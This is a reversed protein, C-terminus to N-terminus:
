RRRRAKAVLGAAGSALVIITMPEPVPSSGGGGTNLLAIGGLAGLIGLPAVGGSPTAIPIDRTGTPTPTATVIPVEAVSPPVVAVLSQDPLSDPIVAVERMETTPVDVIVPQIDNGAYPTTPGLTLPNGCRALLVPNGDSTEFIQEGKKLVTVRHKVVGDEPVSYVHFTGSQKLQTSRLTSLYAVLQDESMAFHRMYRDRVQKDTRIQNILESVTTVKRNLFANREPRAYALGFLCVLALLLAFGRPKMVM